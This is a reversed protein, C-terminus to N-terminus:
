AIGGSDVGVVPLGSAMAEAVALGFGEGAAPHALVHVRAYVEQPDSV